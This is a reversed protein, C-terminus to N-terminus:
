FKSFDILKIDEPTLSNLSTEGHDSIKVSKFINIELFEGAILPGKDVKVELGGEHKIQGLAEKQRITFDTGKSLKNEIYIVDEIKTGVKKVLLIDAKTYGNTTYLQVETLLQYENLNISPFLQELRSRITPHTLLNEVVNKNFQRGKVVYNIFFESKAIKAIDGPIDGSLEQLIEFALEPNDHVRKFADFLEPEVLDDALKPYTAMKKELSQLFKVDTRILDNHKAPIEWARVGGPGNLVELVDDGAEFFDEIFKGKLGKPLKKIEAALEPFQELKKLFCDNHVLVGPAGVYYNHNDEVTFNYVQVTTDKTFKNELVLASGDVAWLTDGAKLNEAEIYQGDFWFPHNPTAWLTDGTTFVLAMIASVIYSKISTM